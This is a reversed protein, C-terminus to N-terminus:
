QGNLARFRGLAVDSAARADAIAMGQNHKQQKLRLNAAEKAGKIALEGRVKMQKIAQDSMASQTKQQQEQMQQAQQQLQKKIKDAASGVQQMQKVLLKAVGKKSPDMAMRKVQAFFSPGLVDLFKVVDQPSAGKQLSAIAAQGSKLYTTAFILPDQSPSMAGPQGTRMVGVQTLAREQQDATAVNLKSKPNWRKVASHGAMAAIYDDLWNTKGEDSCRDIVGGMAQTVQQRMFPSGQGIVRVWQVCKVKAFCERPVGREECEHQYKKAVPDSTNLNCARRIMETAVEDMQRYYKSFMTNSLSSQQSAEMQKEFKTAPNGPRDPAVPQRYQSLNSRMLDSSTRYMALGDSLFGQIPMQIADTGYPVMGWDGFRALAFKQAAEPTAPKFLIKPAFTKDMLNCLMRNEYEMPGFMKVGLGTVAHFFGGRGREHYMPHVAQKFNDYREYSFFLYKCGSGTSDDQEIIAHTIKGSFEKWFVHALHCVLSGVCYSFSNNKLEQQYWEATRIANQQEPSQIDVANKIVNMTFPVDWGMEAAVHENMIFKYLQPPYYDQLLYAIEWDDTSCPARPPILLRSSEVSRPYVVHPDEFFLPGTGHLVGELQSDQIREDWVNAKFIIEDAMESMVRSYKIAEEENGHTQQIAVSGPAQTVLDYHAGSSAELYSRGTGFNCNCADARGAARLANPSYPPNGDVLGDVLSRRDSMKLDANILLRLFEQTARPDVMRTKPIEGDYSITQPGTPNAYDSM